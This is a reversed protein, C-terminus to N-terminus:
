FTSQRVLIKRFSEEIKQEFEVLKYCYQRDNMKDDGRVYDAFIDEDLWIYKRQLREKLLIAYESFKETREAESLLDFSTYGKSEFFYLNERLADNM